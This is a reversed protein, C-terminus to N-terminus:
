FRKLYIEKDIQKQLAYKDDYNASYDEFVEILRIDVIDNARKDHQKKAKLLELNIFKLGGFVFHLNDDDIIVDDPYIKGYEDEISNHRAYHIDNTWHFSEYGLRERYKSKVAVDIDEAARLGFIEMSSSGVIVVDEQNVHNESLLAKVRNIRSVFEERYNRSVRRGVNLLNNPSLLIQKLRLFEERTDSGHMVIPAIDTEFFMSDRLSLKCQRITGYIDVDKNREDSLLILRVKLTSMKLLRLKRDMYVDRWLPDSYIEHLLNEFGLYNKTFDINVYGVVTLEKLIQAMIFDWHAEVSAYLIVIGCSPYLDSFARLIRIQDNATFRNEL